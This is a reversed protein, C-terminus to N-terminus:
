AFKCMKESTIDLHRLILVFTLRTNKTTATNIRSKEWPEKTRGIRTSEHGGPHTLTTRKSDNQDPPEGASLAKEMKASHRDDHNELKGFGASSKKEKRLFFM